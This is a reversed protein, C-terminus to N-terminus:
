KTKIKKLEADIVKNVDLGSVETEALKKLLFDQWSTSGYVDFVAKYEAILSDFIQQHLYCYTNGAPLSQIKESCALCKGLYHM